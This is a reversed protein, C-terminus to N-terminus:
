TPTQHQTETDSDTHIDTDTHTPPPTLNTATETLAHTPHKHIYTQLPQTALVIGWVAAHM